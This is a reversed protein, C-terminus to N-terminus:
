RKFPPNNAISIAVSYAAVAAFIFSPNRLAIDDLIM